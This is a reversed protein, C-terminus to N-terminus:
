RPFAASQLDSAHTNVSLVLMTLNPTPLRYNAKEATCASTTEEFPRHSPFAASFSPPALHPSQKNRNGRTVLIKSLDALCQFLYFYVPRLPLLSHCAHCHFFPIFIITSLITDKRFFSLQFRQRAGLSQCIVIINNVM